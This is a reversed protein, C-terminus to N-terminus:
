LAMIYTVYTAGPNLFRAGQLCGTFSV